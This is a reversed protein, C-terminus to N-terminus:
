SDRHNGPSLSCHTFELSTAINSDGTLQKYQLIHYHYVMMMQYAPSAQRAAFGAIIEEPNTDPYKSVTTRAIRSSSSSPQVSGKIAQVFSNLTHLLASSDFNKVKEKANLKSTVIDRLGTWIAQNEQAERGKRAEELEDWLNRFIAPLLRFSTQGGIVSQSVGAFGVAPPFTLAHMAITAIYNEAQVLNHCAENDMKWEEVKGDSWYVSVFARKARSHGSMDGYRIIARRDTKTVLEGLITKPSRGSFHKPLAMDRVTILSGNEGAEETPMAELLSFLGESDEDDKSDFINSVSNDASSSSSILSGVNSSVSGNLKSSQEM